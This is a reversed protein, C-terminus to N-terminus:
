ECNPLNLFQKLNKLHNVATEEIIVKSTKFYLLSNHNVCGSTNSTSQFIKYYSIIFQGSFICWSIWLPFNFSITRKKQWENISLVNLLVQFLHVIIAFLLLLMAAKNHLNWEKTKTDQCQMQTCVLPLKCQILM